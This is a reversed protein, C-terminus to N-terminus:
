FALWAYLYITNNDSANRGFGDYNQNGGNFRTYITYQAALKLNAWPRGWSDAKGFPIWDAEIVFANSNPKGNASGTVPAPAYLLPNAQGWTNQWGLTLGYTRDYFYSVNARVQNLPSSKTSSAGMNFSGTLDAFEHVYIGYLSAVNTGNGLFQYGGDVALDRFYNRGFAATASREAIAPNINSSLFVTGVYADQGNWNWEYAARLYPSITNTAGPGYTTGTLSLLTPGYTSYGGAEFYLSRDYWAYATLGISNGILGGALLPEATPVPALASSAYPFIWAFTSNFADQVLPGNNVSTGIRLETDNLDIPTTLRVDTNDLKFAKTVGSYTGQVFGGLYDTARGALFVSVQDLAFNNNRGFDNAPPTPQSKDTANFSGLVFAALPIHAALDQGGTQTYGGIKFARGLPTLQPGFAGVHCASCPQGTQQAFSPVAEAPRHLLLLALGAAGAVILARQLRTAMSASAAWFIV